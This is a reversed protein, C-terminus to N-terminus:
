CLRGSRGSYTRQTNDSRLSNFALPAPINKCSVLLAARRSGDTTDEGVTIDPVPGSMGNRANSITERIFGEHNNFDPLSDLEACLTKSDRGTRQLTRREVETLDSPLQASGGYVLRGIEADQSEKKATIETECREYENELETPDSPIVPTPLDLTKDASQITRAYKAEKSEDAKEKKKKNKAKLATQSLQAYMKQGLTEDCMPSYETGPAGGVVEKAVLGAEYFWQVM